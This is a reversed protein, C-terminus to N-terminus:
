TTVYIFTHTYTFLHDYVCNVHSAPASCVTTVTLSYKKFLVISYFYIEILSSFNVM